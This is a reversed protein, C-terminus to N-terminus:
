NGGKGAHCYGCFGKGAVGDPRANYDTHCNYCSAGANEHWYGHEQDQMFGTPHTMPDTGKVGDPDVHCLVCTADGGQVDHCSVCSELDRRAFEAHRGGGSGRGTTVFGGGYHWTPVAAVSSINDGASHCDVCFNQADHCVYCDASRGRADIGHTYRYNMPHQMQIVMQNPGDTPSVRPSPDAMKAGMGFQVPVSAGHCQSCFDQTHCTACEVELAGLRTLQQHSQRFNAALHDGPVLDTFSTHCAECASTAKVENHCATCTQMTPMNAPGALDLKDLGPHCGTCEVGKQNLHQEHSFHIRRAPSPAAEINDPDVHCYSCTNGIQEEHCATCNDHGPRLNDSARTSTKAAHCDECAIGAEGVHFRHSFKLRKADSGDPWSLPATSKSAVATVLAGAIVLIVIVYRGVM